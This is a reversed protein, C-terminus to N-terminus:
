EYWHKVWPALVNKIGEEFPTHKGFGLKTIVTKDLETDKPRITSTGPNLNATIHDSPLDFVNAMKMVMEYKTM